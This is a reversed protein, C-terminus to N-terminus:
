DPVSTRHSTYMTTHIVSFACSETHVKDPSPELSFLRHCCLEYACCCWTLLLLSTGALAIAM